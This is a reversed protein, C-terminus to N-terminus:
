INRKQINTPLSYTTIILIVVRSAFLYIEALIDAHESLLVHVNYENM